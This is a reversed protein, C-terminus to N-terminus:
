YINKSIKKAILEFNKNWIDIREEEPYEALTRNENKLQIIKNWGSYLDGKEELTITVPVKFVYEEYEGEPNAYVTAIEFYGSRDSQNELMELVKKASINKEIFNMYPGPFNFANLFFSHDERVVPVKLEKSALIATHKAIELSTDAQIEPYNKEIFLVNINYKEFVNKATLQKWPNKTIIHINMNIFIDYKYIDLLKFYKYM